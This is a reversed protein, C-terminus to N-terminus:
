RAAGSSKDRASCTASHEPAICSLQRPCTLAQPLVAPAHSGRQRHNLKPPQWRSRSNLSAGHFRVGCGLDRGWRESEVFAVVAVRVFEPFLTTHTQGIKCDHACFCHSLRAAMVVIKYLVARKTSLRNRKAAAFGHHRVTSDQVTVEGKLSNKRYQKPEDRAM